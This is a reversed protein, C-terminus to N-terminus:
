LEYRFFVHSKGECGEQRSAWDLADFPTPFTMDLHVGDICVATCHTAKEPEDAVQFDYHTKGNRTNPDADFEAMDIREKLGEIM